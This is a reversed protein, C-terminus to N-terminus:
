TCKCMNQLHTLQKKTIGYFFPDDIVKMLHKCCTHTEAHRYQYDPCTCTGYAVNVTYAKGGKSYSAVYVINQSTPQVDYSEKSPLDDENDFDSYNDEEEDDSSDLSEPFPTDVVKGKVKEVKEMVIPSSPPNLSATNHSISELTGHLPEFITQLSKLQESIMHLYGTHTALADMMLKMTKVMEDQSQQTSTTSM